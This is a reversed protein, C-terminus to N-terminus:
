NDRFKTHCEGCKGKIEFLKSKATDGNGAAAATSLEKALDSVALTIEKGVPDTHSEGVKRTQAALADAAKVVADYKKAELNKGIAGVWAQRAEMLEHVAHNHSHGKDKQTAFASVAIALTIATLIM